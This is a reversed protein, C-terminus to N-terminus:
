EPPANRYPHASDLLLDPMRVSWAIMGEIKELEALTYAGIKIGAKNFEFPTTTGGASSSGIGNWLANTTSTTGATFYSLPTTAKGNIRMRRQANVLDFEVVALWPTSGQHGGVDSGSASDGDNKRGSSRLIQANTSSRALSARVFDATPTGLYILPIGGGTTGTGDTLFRGLMILVISSANKGLALGASGEISIKGAGSTGPMSFARRGNFPISKGQLTVSSPVLSITGSNFKSQMTAISRSFDTTTYLTPDDADIWVDPPSALDEIGWSLTVPLGGFSQLWEAETGEFGADLASEYASKGDAGDGGPAGQLSALWMTEDGVFGGDVAIEYASKGDVGDTGDTGNTGDTGDDGTDGKAGKLSLLWAAQTGVFGNALAVQYASLGAPGDDGIEGDDGKLSLLWQAESGVYGNALAVQYASLGNVGGDESIGLLERAYPVDFYAPNGSSDNGYFVDAFGVQPILGGHQAVFDRIAGVSTSVDEGEGEGTMRTAPLVIDYGDNTNLDGADDNEFFRKNAM